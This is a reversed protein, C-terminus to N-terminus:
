ASSLVNEVQISQSLTISEASCILLSSFHRLLHSFDFLILMLADFEHQERITFIYNEWNDLYAVIFHTFSTVLNKPM